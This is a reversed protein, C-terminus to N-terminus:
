DLNVLGGDQRDGLNNFVIPDIDYHITHVSGDAFVANFGSSHSSGFNIVFFQGRSFKRASPPESSPIKIPFLERNFTFRDFDSRPPVGTSRMTDASWGDTWGHDDCWSGGKRWDTRIFKEGIVMTNSMGDTIQALRTPKSVNTAFEKDQYRWPSRVTVGAYFINDPVADASNGNVGFFSQRVTDTSLPVSYATRDTFSRYGAPHAAAYDSLVSPPQGYREYSRPRRRSPCFYLPIVISRLSAPDTLNHVENMELYPVIQYAWGLGQRDPGFPRGNEVYNTIDAYFVDGGTPFADHSNTYALTALGMQRLNNKCQTRRAAERAMQVAPLLMQILMSLIAVVILLEILTFGSARNKKM